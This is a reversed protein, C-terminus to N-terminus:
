SIQNKSLFLRGDNFLQVGMDQVMLHGHHPIPSLIRARIDRAYTVSDESRFLPDRSSYLFLDPGPAQSSKILDTWTEWNEHKDIWRFRDIAKEVLILARDNLHLVDNVTKQSGIRFIKAAETLSRRGNTTKLFLGIDGSDFGFNMFMRLHHNRVFEFPSFPMPNLVAHFQINLQFRFRLAISLTAGYSQGLFVFHETKFKERIHTLWHGLIEVHRSFPSPVQSSFFVKLNPLAVRFQSKLFPVLDQYDQPGGGFGHFCVLIPANPTTSEELRYRIELGDHNFVEV